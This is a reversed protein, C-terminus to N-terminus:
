LRLQLLLDPQHLPLLICYLLFVVQQGDVGQEDVVVGFEFLELLDDLVIVLFLFCIPDSEFLGVDLLEEVHKAFEGPHNVSLILEVIQIFNILPSGIISFNFLYCFVANM